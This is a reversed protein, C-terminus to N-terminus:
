SMDKFKFFTLKKGNKSKKEIKQIKPDKLRITHFLQRNNLETIM